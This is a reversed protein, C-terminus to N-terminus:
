DAPPGTVRVDDGIAFSMLDEGVLVKGDYTERTLEPLTAADFPDVLVLHSYVALKPKM